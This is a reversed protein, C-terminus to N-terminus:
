SVGEPFVLSRLQSIRLNRLRKHTPRDRPAFNLAMTFTAVTVSSSAHNALFRLNIKLKLLQTRQGLDVTRPRDSVQGHGSTLLRACAISWFIARHPRNGPRALARLVGGRTRSGPIEGDPPVSNTYGHQQLSVIDQRHCQGRSLSVLEVDSTLPGRDSIRLHQGQCETAMKAELRTQSQGNQVVATWGHCGVVVIHNCSCM